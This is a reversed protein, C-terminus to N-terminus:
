NRRNGYSCRAVLIRWWNHDETVIKAEKSDVGMTMLDERYTDQWTKMPGGRKRRGEEPLWETALSATM